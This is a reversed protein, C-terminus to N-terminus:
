KRKNQPEKSQKENPDERKTRTMREPSKGKSPKNRTSNEKENIQKSTGVTKSKNRVASKETGKTEHKNSKIMINENKKYKGNTNGHIDKKEKRTEELKHQNTNESHSQVKKRETKPSKGSTENPNKNNHEKVNRDQNKENTNKNFKPDDNTRTNINETNNDKPPKNYTQHKTDKEQETIEQEIKLNDEVKHNVNVTMSKTSKEIKVNADIGPKDRSRGGYYTDPKITEEKTNNKSKPQNDNREDIEKKESMRNDSKRPTKVQSPQNTVHKWPKFQLIFILMLVEVIFVLIGVLLLVVIFTPSNYHVVACISYLVIGLSNCLIINGPRLIPKVLLIEVVNNFSFIVFSFLTSFTLASTTSEYETNITIYCAVFSLVFHVSQFSVRALTFRFDRSRILVSMQTIQPM